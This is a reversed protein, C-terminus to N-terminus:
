GALYHQHEHLDMLSIIRTQVPHKLCIKRIYIKGTIGINVDRSETMVKVIYVVHLIEVHKAFMTFKHIKFM